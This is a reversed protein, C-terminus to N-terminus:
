RTKEWSKQRNEKKRERKEKEKEKELIEKKRERRERLKSLIKSREEREGEGEGKQMDSSTIENRSRQNSYEICCSPRWWRWPHLVCPVVPICKLNVKLFDTLSTRISNLERICHYGLILGINGVLHEGLIKSAFEWSASSFFLQTSKRLGIFCQLFWHEKQIAKNMWLRMLAYEYLSSTMPLLIVCWFIIYITPFCLLLISQLSVCYYYLNYPFVTIIYITPFCVLLISKLSVCYYYLNYPFGSIIYIRPFCM